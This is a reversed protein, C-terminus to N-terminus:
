KSRKKPKNLYESLYFDDLAYLVSLFWDIDVGTYNMSIYAKIETEEIHHYFVDGGMPPVFFKRGRNLHFFSKIITNVTSNTKPPNWMGQEKYYDVM